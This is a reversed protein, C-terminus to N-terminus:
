RNVKVLELDFILDSKPPIVPPRGGEGYALQWPITVRRKEGLRMGVLGISFGPIVGRGITVPLPQGGHDYSSDFKKGSTLRGTYQILVEDGAKVPQGKGARLTEKKVHHTVIKRLEVEFKLTSNPPIAGDPTGQSGYGLAAPITLIRRGGVKMGVIGEDWGRIVQGGGLIFEFPTAGPKKSTDFVKGNLLRGTYDMTLSDGPQAAPGKGVKVDKIQLKGGQLTLLPILLMAFQM